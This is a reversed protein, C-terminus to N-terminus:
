LHVPNLHLTMSLFSFLCMHISPPLVPGMTWTSTMFFTLFPTRILTHTLPQLLRTRAHFNLLTDGIILDILYSITASRFLFSSKDDGCGHHPKTSTTKAPASAPLKQLTPLSPPSKSPPKKTCRAWQAWRSARNSLTIPLATVTSTPVRWVLSLGLRPTPLQSRLLTTKETVVAAAPSSTTPVIKAPNPISSSTVALSLTYFSTSWVPAPLSPVKLIDTAM